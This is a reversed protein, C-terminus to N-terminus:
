IVIQRSIVYNRLEVNSQAVGFLSVYNRGVHRPCGSMGLGECIFDWLQHERTCVLKTWELIFYGFLSYSSISTYSILYEGEAEFNSQNRNGCTM